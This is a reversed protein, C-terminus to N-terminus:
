NPNHYVISSSEQSLRTNIEASNFDIFMGMLYFCLLFTSFGYNPEKVLSGFFIFFGFLFIVFRDREDFNPQRMGKIFKLIFYRTILITILLGFEIVWRFFLSYADYRNLDTLDSKELVQEYDSFFSIYGTSGLGQGIFYNLKVSSIAQNYGQLWSLQSLSYAEINEGLNFKNLLSEPIFYYAFFGLVFLISVHRLKFKSFIVFLILISFTIIHASETLLGASFFAVARVFNLKIEKNIFILYCFVFAYGYMILGAVSPESFFLKPREELYMLKQFFIGLLLVLGLNNITSLLKPHYFNYSNLLTFLTLTLWLFSSCFRYIPYQVRSCILLIFCFIIYSGFILLKKRNLKLKFAAFPFFILFLINFLDFKTTGIEIAFYQLPFLIILFNIFYKMFGDM